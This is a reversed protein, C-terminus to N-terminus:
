MIGSFCSEMAQSTLVGATVSAASQAFVGGFMMALCGLVQIQWRSIISM